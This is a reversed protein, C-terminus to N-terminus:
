PRASRAPGAERMLLIVGGVLGLLVGALAILSGVITHSWSYGGEIGFSATAWAILTIRTWNAAVVVISAFLIAVLTRIAGFRGTLGILGGVIMAPGVLFASTCETTVQVGMMTPLGAAWYVAQNQSVVLIEGIDIFQLIWGVATADISAVARHFNIIMIGSGFLAFGVVFAAIRSARGMPAAARGVRVAARRGRAASHPSRGTRPRLTGPEADERVQVAEDNVTM